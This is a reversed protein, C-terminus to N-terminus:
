NRIRLYPKVPDPILNGQDDYTLAEQFTAEYEPIFSYFEDYATYYDELINTTLNGM